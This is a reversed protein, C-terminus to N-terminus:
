LVPFIIDMSFIQNELGVVLNGGYKEVVYRVSKLGFGHYDMNEKTSVPLGDQFKLEKECYNEMHIGMVDKRAYGILSIIRKEVPLTEVYEIANDLANGFIAALDGAKIGALKEGDIMYSFKIQYKECLLNKESLIIDLPKCGTKALGDYIDIAQSIEALQQTDVNCRNELDLIRHKLDHCKMNIIEITKRSLDYQKENEKLLQELTERENDLRSNELLGFQVFLTIVCCFIFPARCVPILDYKEEIMWSQLVWGVCLSSLALALIGGRRKSIDPFDAVKRAFLFYGIVYTILYCIVMEIGMMRFERGSIGCFFVQINSGLNQLIFAGTNCFLVDWFSQRFCFMMYLQAMVLICFTRIGSIYNAIWVPLLIGLLFLLIGGAFVRLIFHNRKEFKYFFLFEAVLLQMLFCCIATISYFDTQLMDMLRM